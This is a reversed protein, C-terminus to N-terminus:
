KMKFFYKYYDLMISEINKRNLNLILYVDSEM